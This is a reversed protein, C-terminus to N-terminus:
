RGLAECMPDGEACQPAVPASPPSPAPTKRPPPKGVVPPSTPPNPKKGRERELEELKRRMTEIRESGNATAADIKQRLLRIEEIKRESAQMAQAELALRERETREQYASFAAVGAVLLGVVLVAGTVTARGLRQKVRDRTVEAMRREHEQAQALLIRKAESEALHRAKEIEAHRIADLRADEERRLSEQIRRQEELARLAEEEKRQQELRVRARKAEEAERQAREAAREENIRENELDM